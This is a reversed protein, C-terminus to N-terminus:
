SRLDILGFPRPPMARDHKLTLQGQIGAISELVPGEAHVKIIYLSGILLIRTSAKDM